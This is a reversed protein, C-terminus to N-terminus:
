GSSTKEKHSIIYNIDNNNKILEFELHKYNKERNLKNRVLFRAKSLIIKNEITRNMKIKGTTFDCM